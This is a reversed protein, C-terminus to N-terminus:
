VKDEFIAGKIECYESKESIDATENMRLTDRIRRQVVSVLRLCM